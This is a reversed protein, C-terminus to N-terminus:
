PQTLRAPKPTRGEAEAIAARAADVAWQEVALVDGSYLRGKRTSVIRVASLLDRLAALLKPAAAMLAADAPRLPFDPDRALLVTAFGEEAYSVIEATDDNHRIVEWPGPTHQTQTTPM